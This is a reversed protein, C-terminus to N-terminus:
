IGEHGWSKSGMGTAMMPRGLTPFDVRKLRRCDPLLRVQILPSFDLDWTTSNSTGPPSVDSARPFLFPLIWHVVLSNNTITCSQSIQPKSSCLHLVHTSTQTERAEAATPVVRSRLSVSATKPPGPTRHSHSHSAPSVLLHIKM